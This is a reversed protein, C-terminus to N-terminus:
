DTVSAKLARGLVSIGREIEDEPVHLFSLRLFRKGSEDATFREGPRCGVGEAAARLRVQEADVQPALELWFYIGGGPIQYTVLPDCYRRLADLALDTKRRNIVRARALHPDLKGDALYAELMRPIMQNVGLDQRVGDLAAVADPTGVVYGLRLGPALMKSFSDTRIVLGSRDLGFLTSPPPKDYYKEHYCNDEVVDVGSEEALEVLRRRRELPLLTGTPVQFSPITYVM